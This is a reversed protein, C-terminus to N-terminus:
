YFRLSRSQAGEARKAMGLTWLSILMMAVVGLPAFPM